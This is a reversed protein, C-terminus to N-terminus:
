TVRLKSIFNPVRVAVGFMGVLIYLKTLAGTVGLPLEIVTPTDSGLYPMSVVSEDIVFADSIGADGGVTYVTADAGPIKIVPVVGSGSLNVGTVNPLGPVVEVRESEIFRRFPQLENEFQVADTVRLLVVSSLGGLNVALADAQNLGELITDAGLARINAAPVTRRLGDFSNADYLGDVTNLTGAVITANGQLYTQQLQAAIAEIGFTIEQQETNWPMGGAAVSLSQKLSTGVRLALVAINSTARTYVSQSDPVAATEAIFTAAPRQDVRQYSHVLGNAPVKDVRAFAPFRRVFAAHILPELDQRILVNGSVTDIFKALEPDAVMKAATEKNAWAAFPIGAGQESGYELQDRIAAKLQAPPLRLAQARMKEIELARVRQVGRVTGGEKHTEDDPTESASPPQSLGVLGAKIEDLREVVGNIDLEGTAM